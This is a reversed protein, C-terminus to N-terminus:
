GSPHPFHLSLGDSVGLSSQVFSRFSSRRMRLRSNRELLPTVNVIGCAIPEPAQADRYAAIRRPGAARAREALAPASRNSLIKKYRSRASALRGEIEYKLGAFYLEWTWAARKADSYGRQKKAARAAKEVAKTPVGDFAAEAKLLALPDTEQAASEAM